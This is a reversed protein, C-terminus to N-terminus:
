KDDAVEKLNVFLHYHAMVSLTQVGAITNNIVFDGAELADRALSIYEDASQDDPPPELNHLAGM